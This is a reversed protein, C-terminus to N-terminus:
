EQAEQHQTRATCFKTKQVTKPQLQQHTCLLVSRLSRSMFLQALSTIGDILANLYELLDLYQDKKSKIAKQM